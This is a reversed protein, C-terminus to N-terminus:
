WTLAWRKAWDRGHGQEQGDDDDGDSGESSSGKPSVPSMDKCDEQQVTERRVSDVFTERRRSRRPWSTGASADSGEDEAQSGNSAAPMSGNTNKSETNAHQLFSSGRRSAGAEQNEGRGSVQRAGRAGQPPVPSPPSGGGGVAPRSTSTASLWRGPARTEPMPPAPQTQDSVGLRSRSSLTVAAPSPQAARNPSPEVLTPPTDVGSTDMGDEEESGEDSSGGDGAGAGNPISRTASEGALKRRKASM